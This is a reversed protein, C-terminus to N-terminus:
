WLVQDTSLGKGGVKSVGECVAFASPSQLIRVSGKFGDVLRGWFAKALDVQDLRGVGRTPRERQV